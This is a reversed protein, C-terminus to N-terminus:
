KKNIRKVVHTPQEPQTSEWVKKVTNRIKTVTTQRETNKEKAKGCGCGM